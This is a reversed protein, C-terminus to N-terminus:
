ETKSKFLQSKKAHNDILKKDDNFYVMTSAIKSHGSLTKVTMVDAGNNVLLTVFTHRAVHCSLVKNIGAMKAFEKLHLNVTNSTVPNEFVHKDTGINKKSNSFELLLAKAWPEIVATVSDKTKVQIKNIRQNDWDIHSWKLDLIDSIRFGTYCALLFMQLTKRQNSFANFQPLLNRLAVLEDLELYIERINAKPMKFQPYPNKVKIDHRLIDLIVARLNKHKNERGGSQNGKVDRLFADFKEIFTLNIDCIRLKPSFEKLMAYTNNYIRITDADKGEKKKNEVFELYYDYFSGNEPKIKKKGGFYDKILQISLEGGTAQETLLHTELDTVMKSIVTRLPNNKPLQAKNDWLNKSIHYGTTVKINEGKVMIRLQISHNGNKLSEYKLAPHISYPKM